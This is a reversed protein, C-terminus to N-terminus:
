STIFMGIELDQWAIQDPSPAALSPNANKAGPSPKVEGSMQISSVTALAGALFARRDIVALPM